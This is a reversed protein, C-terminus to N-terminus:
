PRAEVASCWSGRVELAHCNSTAWPEDVPM